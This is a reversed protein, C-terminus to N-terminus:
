IADCTMETGTVLEQIRSPRTNWRVELKQIQRYLSVDVLVYAGREPHHCYIVDDIASPDYGQRALETKIYKFTSTVELEKTIRVFLPRAYEPLRSALYAPFPKLDFSADVVLAAMGARGDAGPVIVGYVIAQKVGPFECIASAVESTAVNEGKWRFTDGIRDVFYFFGTESRRMLDGTRFWADGAAFVDRLIKKESADTDTYGEFRAGFNSLDATIQGLAEGV